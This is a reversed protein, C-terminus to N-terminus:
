SKVIQVGYENLFSSLNGIILGELYEIAWDKSEGTEIRIHSNASTVWSKMVGDSLQKDLEALFLNKRKKLFEVYYPNEEDFGNQIKDEYASIIKRKLNRIDEISVAEDLKHIELSESIEEYLVELNLSKLISKFEIVIRQPSANFFERNQNIRYENLAKHLTQEVREADEVLASYLIEFEFPISTNSLEASREKPDKKTFGIKHMGGLAPNKLIYIWGKM